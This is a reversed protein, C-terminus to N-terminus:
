FSQDNKVKFLGRGPIDFDAKQRRDAHQSAKELATKRARRLSHGQAARLPREARGLCDAVIASALRVQEADSASKATREM